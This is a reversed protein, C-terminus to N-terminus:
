ACLIKLTLLCLSFIFNLLIQPYWILPGGLHPQWFESKKVVWALCMFNKPVAFVSLLNFKVFNSTDFHPDEQCLAALIKFKKVTLGLCILNKSHTSILFVSFRVFIPAGLCARWLEFHKVKYAPCM